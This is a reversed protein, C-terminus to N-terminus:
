NDKLKSKTRNVSQLSKEGLLKEEKSGNGYYEFFNRGTERLRIKYLNQTSHNILKDKWLQEKLLSWLCVILNETTANNDNIFDFDNLITYDFYDLVMEVSQDMQPPSVVLSTIKNLNGRITVDLTYSHGHLNFCKGYLKKNEVDTLKSNVTRHAATFTYSRTIDLVGDDGQYDAWVSDSEFLTIQSLLLIRLRLDNWIDITMEELTPIMEKKPNYFVIKPEHFFHDWKKIIESEVIQDLEGLDLIMESQPNKTGSIKAWLVFNHGHPEVANGYSKFNEESNLLSSKEIHAAEFRYERIGHYIAM